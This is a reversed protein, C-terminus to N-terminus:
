SISVACLAFGSHIERNYKAASNRRRVFIFNDNYADEKCSIAAGEVDRISFNQEDFRLLRIITSFHFFLFTSVILSTRNHNCTKRSDSM